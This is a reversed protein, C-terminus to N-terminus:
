EFRYAGYFRRIWAPGTYREVCSNTGKQCHLMRGDAVVLGVHCPINIIRFLIMDGPVVDSLMPVPTWSGDLLSRNIVLARNPLDTFTSYNELYEPPHKGFEPMALRVIGYCDVGDFGRGRDKYPIGVYKNVWTPLESM